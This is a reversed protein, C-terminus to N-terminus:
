RGNPQLDIVAEDNAGHCIAQRKGIQHAEQGGKGIEASLDIANDLLGAAEGPIVFVTREGEALIKVKHKENLALMLRLKQQDSLFIKKEDLLALYRRLESPGDVTEGNSTMATEDRDKKRYVRLDLNEIVVGLQEKVPEVLVDRCANRLSDQIELIKQSEQKGIEDSIAAQIRSVFSQPFARFVDREMMKALVKINDVLRFDVSIDYNVKFNDNTQAEDGQIMLNLLGLNLNGAATAFTNPTFIFKPNGTELGAFSDAPRHRLKIPFPPRDLPHRSVHYRQSGLFSFIFVRAENPLRNSSAM